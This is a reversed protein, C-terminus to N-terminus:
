VVTTCSVVACNESKFSLCLVVTCSSNYLKYLRHFILVSFVVPLCLKISFFQEFIISQCSKWCTKWVCLVWFVIKELNKMYKKTISNRADRIQPYYGNHPFGKRKPPFVSYLVSNQTPNLVFYLMYVCSQIEFQVINYLGNKLFWLCLM